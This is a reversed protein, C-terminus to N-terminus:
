KSKVFGKNKHCIQPKLSIVLIGGWRGCVCVCVQVCPMHSEQQGIVSGFEEVWLSQPMLM